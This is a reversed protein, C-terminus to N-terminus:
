TDTCRANTQTSESQASSGSSNSHMCMSLPKQSPQSLASNDNTKWLTAVSIQFSPKKAYASIIGNVALQRCTTHSSLVRGDLGPGERQLSPLLMETPSSSCHNSLRTKRGMRVILDHELGSLSTKQRFEEHKGRFLLVFSQFEGKQEKRRGQKEPFAARLTKKHPQTM